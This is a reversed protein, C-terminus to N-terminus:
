EKVTVTIEHMPLGLVDAHVGSSLSRIILADNLWHHQVHDQLTGSAIAVSVSYDAPPLYPMRFSFRAVIQSGAAAFEPSNGSVLGSNDGFVNQGFRNRLFFGLIPQMLDRHALANIELCVLEGGRIGALANGESDLLRATTLTAAGDGFADGSSAFGSVRMPNDLPTDRVTELRFDSGTVDAPATTDAQAVAKTAADVPQSRAYLSRLYADTVTKADGRAQISGHKLWIVDTALARVAALDHSVFLITGTQMFRRLFRMCKQTFYADGVALAEDIILIDADVHAIVAFALRVFMGSSYTRVAQDIHEGIEAFAEIASFRQDIEHRSLGYLTGYLYVNERGTCEPNFGAGLELLAAVRGTVMIRGASPQLTGALIQLLTSKGSGNEGIIGLVTGKRADLSVRRLAHFEDGRVWRRAGLQALMRKGPSAYRVYTKCVDEAWIVFDKESSM